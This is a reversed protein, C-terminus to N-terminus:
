RKLSFHSKFEKQIGEENKYALVFWYDTSPLSQGNYTGDWGPGGPRISALLKGYRDFISISGQYEIPLAWINWFDNYSDGNPTFYKPYNIVSIEIQYAEACQDPYPTFTYGVPTSSNLVIGSPFWSGQINNESVTPLPKPTEGLFYQTILNFVPTSIGVVEIQIPLQFIESCDGPDSTFVYTQTGITATDIVPPSWIGRVGNSSVTPLPRAPSGLCYIQDLNFVPPDQTPVLITIEIRESACGNGSVAEAWYRVTATLEPTEFTNGTFLPVTGNSTGYWNITNGLATNAGLTITEGSCAEFSTQAEIDPLPHVMIELKRVVYCADATAIRIYLITSAATTFDTPLIDENNQAEEETEHFTIAAGPTPDIQPLAELLNFTQDNGSNCTELLANEADPGSITINFTRTYTEGDAILTLTITYTGPANYAYDPYFESSSAGDGFDWHISEIEGGQSCFDFDLRAGTCYLQEERISLNNVTIAIRFYNNLFTPLGILGVKTGLYVADETYVPTDGTMANYIVNPAEIRDLYSATAKAIYIKDDLARQLAAEAGRYELLVQRTTIVSPANLNYQLLKKEFNGLPAEFNGISETYLVQSDSSFEVGYFGVGSGTPSLIIENSAAGTANNFDYISLSGVTDNKNPDEMGLALRTGNPSGKLYGLGLKATINTSSVVPTLDVGEATISFAYFKGEFHTVVWYGTKDANTIAALKEYGQVVGNIPVPINKQVVKGLGGNLSMDVINYEIGRKPRYSPVEGDQTDITFIYYLNCDDPKPLIISSSTSSPDGRLGTGDQMITHTKDYVRMGDTYFQLNGYEDSISTCGEKTFIQGNTDAVPTAGTFNLGAFNGFYWHATQLQNTQQAQACVVILLIAILLFYQRM